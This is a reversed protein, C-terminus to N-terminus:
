DEEDSRVPRLFGKLTMQRAKGQTVDMIPQARRLTKEMSMWLDPRTSALLIKLSKEIHEMYKATDVEKISSLESPHRAFASLGNSAPRRKGLNSREEKTMERAHFMM